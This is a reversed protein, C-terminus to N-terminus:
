NGGMHLRECHIPIIWFLEWYPSQSCAPHGLNSTQYLSTKWWRNLAARKDVPNQSSKGWPYLFHLMFSVIWRWRTSLNLISPANGGHKWYGTVTHQMTGSHATLPYQVEWEWLGLFNEPSFADEKTSHQVGYHLFSGQMLLTLYCM